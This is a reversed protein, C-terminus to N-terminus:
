LFSMLVNDVICIAFLSTLFSSLWKESEQTRGDEIVDDKGQIDAYVLELRSEVSILSTWYGGGSKQLNKRNEM